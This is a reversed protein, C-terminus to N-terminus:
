RWNYSMQEKYLKKLMKKAQCAAMYMFTMKFLKFSKHTNKLQYDELKEYAGRQGIGLSNLVM